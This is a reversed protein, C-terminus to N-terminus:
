IITKYSGSTRQKVTDFDLRESRRKLRVYESTQVDFSLKHELIM